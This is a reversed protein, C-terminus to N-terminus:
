QKDLQDREQAGKLVTSVNEFRQSQIIQQIIILIYHKHKSFLTELHSCQDDTSSLVFMYTKKTFLLDTNLNRNKHYITPLEMMTLIYTVYDLVDPRAIESTFLLRGALQYFLEIYNTSIRSLVDHFESRQNYGSYLSYNSFLRDSIPRNKTLKRTVNPIFTKINIFQYNKPDKNM